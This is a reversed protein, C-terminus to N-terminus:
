WKIGRIARVVGFATTVSATERVDVFGAATVLSPIEGGFNEQVHERGIHEVLFSLVRTLTGRPPGFDAIHLEGGSRLLRFSEQLARIKQQRDLHHLVLTTLVRDFSADPFPVDTASARELRKPAGARELKKRARALIAADVDIGTFHARPNMRWGLMLLTGTGCGLDLVEFGDRIAAIELLRVKLRREPFTLKIGLDYLPTLIHYKLAPVYTQQENM